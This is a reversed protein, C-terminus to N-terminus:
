CINIWSILLCHQKIVKTIVINSTM